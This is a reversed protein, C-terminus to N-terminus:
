IIINNNFLQNEFDINTGIIDDCFFQIKTLIKLHELEKNLELVLNPPYVYALIESICVNDPNSYNISYKLIANFIYLWLILKNFNYTPRLFRFEVTKNVDYCLLNIFNVFYYRTTINWKQNRYEDKPHPDTLNGKFKRGVLRKYMHDFSKFDPLLKCYDKKTKKYKKTQFTLEPLLEKLEDQLGRCVKYLNFIADSNLPYNGFHIHLACEKDFLTYKRITELQQKLLAIGDNGKLIITAYEVASISGDKLPILGDRYCLDEPVYGGSTEFEVGFTFDLYKSLKYQTHTNLITQKGTFVHLNNIAEYYRDIDYPYGGSGYMYQESEIYHMSCNIPSFYVGQRKSFLLTGKYINVDTYYTKYEGYVYLIIKTIAEYNSSYGFTIFEGDFNIVVRRCWDYDVWRQTVEDFVYM